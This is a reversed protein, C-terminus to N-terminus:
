VFLEGWERASALLLVMILKRFDDAVGENLLEQFKIALM